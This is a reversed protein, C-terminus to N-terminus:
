IQICEELCNIQNYIPHSHDVESYIIADNNIVKVEYATANKIQTWQINFERYNLVDGDTPFIIEAKSFVLMLLTLIFNMYNM